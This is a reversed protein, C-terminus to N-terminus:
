DVLAMSRLVDIGLCNAGCTAAHRQIGASRGDLKGGRKNLPLCLMATRAGM